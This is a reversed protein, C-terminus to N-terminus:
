EALEPLFSIDMYYRSPKHRELYVVIPKDPIYGSPDFWIDESEFIHIKGTDPNQWQSYIRYPHRGNVSIRTNPGVNHLTTEVATGSALLYEKKKQNGAAVMGMIAGVLFFIFGMGGVVLPGLWLSVFDKIEANIPNQPEYLVTVKDGVNYSPPSSGTTSIFRVEEGEITTFAVEPRYTVDDSGSRVLGVVTGSGEEASDIFSATSQYWFYAGVLM